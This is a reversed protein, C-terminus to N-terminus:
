VAADFDVYLAVFTELQPINAAVSLTGTWSMSGLSNYLEGPVLTGNNRGKIDCLFSM